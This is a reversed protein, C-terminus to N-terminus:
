APSQPRRCVRLSSPWRLSSALKSRGVGKSGGEVGLVTAARSAVISGNTPALVVAGRESLSPVIFHLPLLPSRASRTGWVGKPFPAAAIFIRGFPAQLSESCCARFVHYIPQPGVTVAAAIPRLPTAALQLVKRFALVAGCVWGLRHM